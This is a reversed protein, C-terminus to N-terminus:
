EIILKRTSTKDGLTTKVTYIGTALDSISINNELVPANGLDVTKVLQGVTNYIAVTGTANNSNSLKLNFADKAPNPYISFTADFNKDNLGTILATNLWVAGTNGTGQNQYSVTMLPFKQSGHYYTYDVGVIGLTTAIPVTINVTVVNVTKLQLINTFNTGGPIILTGNGSATTNITGSLTGMLNGGVSGSYLDTNTYGFAVPWIAAIASNSSYNFSITSNSSGLLEYNSGLSKWYNYNGGGQNEVITVGTYAASGAVSAPTTYTSSTTSTNATFSTFNWVQNAGITKPVNATLSDYGKRSEVNTVSPQNAAQTLTLQANAVQGFLLTAFLSFYIKKM